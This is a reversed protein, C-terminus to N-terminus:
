ENKQSKLTQLVSQKIEEITKMERLQHIKVLLGACLKVSIRM